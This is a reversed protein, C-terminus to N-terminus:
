REPSAIYPGPQNGVIFGVTHDGVTQTVGEGGGGAIDVIRHLHCGDRQNRSRQEQDEDEQSLIDHCADAAAADLTLLRVGTQLM